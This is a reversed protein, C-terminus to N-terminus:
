NIMVCHFMAKIPQSFNAFTKTGLVLSLSLHLVSDKSFKEKVNIEFCHQVAYMCILM